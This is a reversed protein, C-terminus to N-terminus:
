LIFRIVMKPTYESRGLIHVTVNALIIQGLLNTAKMIRIQTNKL